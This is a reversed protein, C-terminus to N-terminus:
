KISEYFAGERELADVINEPLRFGHGEEAYSQYDYPKGAADMAARMDDVQSPPVVADKLGQLFLVPGNLSDAHRMPSREHYVAESEPLHGVLSLLYSAEFKHTVEQLTMLDVVGYLSVGGAFVTDHRLANLVTLGGASGGRIFCRKSDAWGQAIAYRAAACCDKYDLIGWQGLLKRRYERGYGASGRYNVDLYAYGRSVWYQIAWNPSADAYATPGGHANVILTPKKASEALAHSPAYYFAHVWQGDEGPFAIAKAAVLSDLLDKSHTAKTLCEVKSTELSLAYMAKPSTPSSARYYVHSSSIALTPDFDTVPLDFFKYKEQSILCLKQQGPPGVIGVIVGEGICFSKLGFVWAPYGCEGPLECVRQLERDRYAYVEWHGAADCSVHLVNSHSWTPQLYSYPADFSCSTVNLLAGDQWDAVWVDSSEWSMEEIGWSIWALSRGDPSFSPSAVFDFQTAILRPAQEGQDLPFAVLENLVNEKKSHTEQVAVLWRGDPSVCMDAYRYEVNSPSEASIRKPQQGDSFVYIAQDSDNVFFFRGEQVLYDGGGYEHVRSRACYEESLLSEAKGNQYRVITQRGKEEPRRECWYLVDADVQLQGARGSSQAVLSADILRSLM